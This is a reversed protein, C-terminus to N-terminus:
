RRGRSVRPPSVSRSPGSSPARGATSGSGGGVRPPSSASSSGSSGSSSRASSSSSSSPAQGPRAVGKSAASSNSASPLVPEAATGPLSASGGPRTVGKSEIVQPAPKAGQGGGPAYSTYTRGATSSATSQRQDAVITRESGPAYVVVPPRAYGGLWPQNFMFYWFFPNNTLSADNRAQAGRQQLEAPVAPKAIGEALLVVSVTEVSGASVNFQRSEPQLATEGERAPVSFAVGYDGAPLATFTYKGQADTQAACHDARQGCDVRNGTLIVTAGSLLTPQQTADRMALIQGEVDGVAPGGCAAALVALAVASAAALAPRWSRPQM